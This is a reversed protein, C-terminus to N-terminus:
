FDLHFKLQYTRETKGLSNYKDEKVTFDFLQADVYADVLSVFYTIIFYWTFDDRQTRYFERLTKLNIDGNPNSPNQSASYQDRYNLFQRNQDYWSYGFYVSLGVLIPVKWYSQNYFQGAGPFIGSLLVAVLPNKKMQFLGEKKAKKTKSTDGHFASDYINIDSFEIRQFSPGPIQQTQNLKQTKLGSNFMSLKEDFSFNNTQSFLFPITIFYIVMGILFVKFIM